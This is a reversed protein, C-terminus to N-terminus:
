FNIYFRRLEPSALIRAIAMIASVVVLGCSYSGPPFLKTMWFLHMLIMFILSIAFILIQGYLTVINKERRQQLDNTSVIQLVRNREDHMSLHHFIILYITMEAAIYLIGISFSARILLIGLEFEDESSRQLIQAMSSTYGHCFEHALATGSLEIGVWNLILFPLITLASFLCYKSAAHTERTNSKIASLRLMAM